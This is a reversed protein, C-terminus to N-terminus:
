LGAPIFGRSQILSGMSCAQSSPSSARIADSPIGSDFKINLHEYKAKYTGSAYKTAQSSYINLALAGAKAQIGGEDFEVAVGKANLQAAALPLRSTLSPTSEPDIFPVPAARRAM